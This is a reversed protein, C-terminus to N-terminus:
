MKSSSVYLMRVSKLSTSRRRCTTASAISARSHGDGASDVRGNVRAETERLWANSRDLFENFV